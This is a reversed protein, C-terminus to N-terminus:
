RETETGVASGQGKNLKPDYPNEHLYIAATEIATQPDNYFAIQGKFKPDWLASWSDIKTKVTHPNYVLSTSEWAWPVSYMKGQYTLSPQTRLKSDVQSYDSVKSTDIPELLGDAAMLQVYAINPLTVDVNGIGGNKILTVEDSDSNFYVFKIKGRKSSSNKTSGPFTPWM